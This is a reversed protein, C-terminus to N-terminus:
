GAALQQELVQVAQWEASPLPQDQIDGGCLHQTAALRLRQELEAPSCPLPPLQPPAEGFVRQWLDAAPEVLVSGHQLLAPGRWVQASGIRKAGQPHILDAATGSAFCSSSRQAQAASTAGMQLPLGLDAFAAQLWRCAQTYAELRHRSAPRCALAYTLDGTHLVARGGSPRQVLEIVGAAALEPWHPELRQQHAGLSLTPRSWRYLRLMPTAGPEVQQQLMWRDLAM